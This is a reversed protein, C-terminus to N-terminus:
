MNRTGLKMTLLHLQRASVVFTHEVVAAEGEGATAALAVVLFLVISVSHCLAM